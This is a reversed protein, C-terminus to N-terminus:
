HTTEEAIFATPNEDYEKATKENQAIQGMIPSFAVGVGLAMMMLGADGIGSFLMSVGLLALATGCLKYHPISNIRIFLREAISLKRKQAVITKPVAVAKPAAEAVPATVARKRPDSVSCQTCKRIIGDRDVQIDFEMIFM